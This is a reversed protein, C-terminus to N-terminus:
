EVLNSYNRKERKSFESEKNMGKCVIVSYFRRQINKIDSTIQGMRESFAYYQNAIMTKNEMPICYSIQNDNKFQKSLSTYVNSNYKNKVRVVGDSPVIINITEITEDIDIGVSDEFLLLIEGEYNKPIHFIIKHNVNSCNVNMFTINLVLAILIRLYKNKKVKIRM